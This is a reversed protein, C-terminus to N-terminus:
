PAMRCTVDSWPSVGAAGNAAVRFWHKKGSELGSMVFRTRTPTGVQIWDTDSVPDAHMQVFYTRAGRVRKWVIVIDGEAEGMEALVSLPAPLPGLPVSPQRTTFGASPIVAPNTKALTDVYKAEEAIAADLEDIAANRELLASACAGQAVDYASIKATATDVLAQLAAMTPNPSPVLANGTIADVISQGYQVHEMPILSRLNLSIQMNHAKEKPLGPVVQDFFVVPVRDFRQGTVDYANTNM